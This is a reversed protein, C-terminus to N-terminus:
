RKVGCSNLGLVSHLPCFRFAATFLPVVGIDGWAGIQGAAALAILAIGVVVRLARDVTGVNAIM